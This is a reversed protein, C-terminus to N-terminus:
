RRNGSFIYGLVLFTVAVGGLFPWPNERVSRDLEGATERLREEGSQLVDNAGAAVDGFATRIHEYKENVLRALEDKKERAAENLLELAETIKASNISNIKTEM